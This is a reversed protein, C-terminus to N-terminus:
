RNWADNGLDLTAQTKDDAKTPEPRIVPLRDIQYQKLRVRVEIKPIFTYGTSFPDAANCVNCKWIFADNGNVLIQRYLVATRMVRCNKCVGVEKWPNTAM